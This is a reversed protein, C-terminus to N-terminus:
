HSVSWRLTGSSPCNVSGVEFKVVTSLYPLSASRKVLTIKLMGNTKLCFATFEPVSDNGSVVATLWKFFIVLTHTSSVGHILKNQTGWKSFRTANNRLISTCYPFHVHIKQVTWMKQTKHSYWIPKLNCMWNLDTLM